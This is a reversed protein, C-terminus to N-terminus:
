ESPQKGNLMHHPRTSHTSCTILDGPLSAAATPAAKCTSFVMTPLLGTAAPVHGGARFAQANGHRGGGERNGYKIGRRNHSSDELLRNGNRTRTEEGRRERATAAM